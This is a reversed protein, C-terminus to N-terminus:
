LFRVTKNTNLAERFHSLLVEADMAAGRLAAVFTDLEDLGSGNAPLSAAFDEFSGCNLGADNVALLSVELASVSDDTRVFESFDAILNSTSSM